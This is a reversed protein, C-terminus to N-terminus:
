QVSIKLTILLHRKLQSMTSLSCNRSASNACMSAAKNLGSLMSGSPSYTKSANIEPGRKGIDWPVNGHCGIKHYFHCVGRMQREPMLQTAVTPILCDIVVLAKSLPQFVTPTFSRECRAM